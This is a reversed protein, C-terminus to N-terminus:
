AATFRITKGPPRRWNAGESLAEEAASEPIDTLKTEGDFRALVVEHRACAELLTQRALWFRDATAM